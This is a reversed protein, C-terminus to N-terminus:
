SHRAHSSEKRIISRTLPIEPEPQPPLHPAPSM